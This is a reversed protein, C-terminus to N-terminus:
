EAPTLEQELRRQIIKILERPSFPKFVVESIGLEEKLTNADLELGKASLFIVPLTDFRPDQRILRCLEEGNMEPMQYDSIILDFSETQLHEWGERGNRGVTVDYGARSLNFRIVDAMARNDEVVLIRNPQKAM